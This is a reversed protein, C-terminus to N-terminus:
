VIRKKTTFLLGSVRVLPQQINWSAPIHEFSVEFDRREGPAFRSAQPAFVARSERLVVQGLQDSFEVTLEVNALPLSGGNTLQGALTTVEQNLFNEARSLTLGEIQINPAYTQEASGFPLHSERTSSASRREAGPWMAVTLAIGITAAGMWAIWSRGAKPEPQEPTEIHLTDSM